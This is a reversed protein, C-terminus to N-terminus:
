QLPDLSAQWAAGGHRSSVCYITFQTRNIAPLVHKHECTSGTMWGARPGDIYAEKEGRCLYGRHPSAGGVLGHHGRPAAGLAVQTPPTCPCLSFHFPTGPFARGASVLTFVNKSSVWCFLPRSLTSRGRFLQTLSGKEVDHTCHQVWSTAPKRRTLSRIRIGCDCSDGHVGGGRGRCLEGREGRERGRM